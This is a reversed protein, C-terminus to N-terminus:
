PLIRLVLLYLSVNSLLIQEKTTNVPFFNTAFHLNKAPNETHLIDVVPDVFTNNVVKEFDDELGFIDYINYVKVSQINPLISKIENLIKSKRCRFSRKEVFIRRKM